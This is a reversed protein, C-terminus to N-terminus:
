LPRLRAALQVAQEAGRRPAEGCVAWVWFGGLGDQSLDAWAVREGAELPTVVGDALGASAHLLREVDPCSAERVLRFRLHLGHGHFIPAVLLRVALRPEHWGLLATVERAIRSELAREGAPLAHQPILNFALQRGFTAVPVAGFQLLRLTQERLEDLGREGFDAAPRVIVAAAEAIGFAPELPQLLDTLLLALPHPVSFCGGDGQATPGPGLPAPARRPRAEPPLCDLLDIVVSGPGIEAAIRRSVDGEQCIFIVDHRAVEALDPRLVVRPEDDYEGLALDHGSEDGGNEGGGAYLDVRAGPVGAAALAERLRAGDATTAGVIAVRAPGRADASPPSM